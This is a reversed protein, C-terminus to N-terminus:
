AAGAGTVEGLEDEGGILFIKAERLVNQIFSDEHAIRQCFEDKSFILANVERGIEERAPKLAKALDRATIEGLVMLDLDSTADEIGQAYSGFIFAVRIDDEEKLLHERLATGVGSTRVLLSRLISFVPSSRNAQFYRRNGEMTAELLGARELRELERQVARIPQSTLTAVQRMYHRESSTLFFLKLIEVRAKSTFLTELIPDSHISKTTM